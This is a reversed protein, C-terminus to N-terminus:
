VSTLNFFLNAFRKCFAATTSVQKLSLMEVTNAHELLRDTFRCAEEIRETVKEAAHLSEMIRLEEESHMKELEELLEKQIKELVAKYNEFAEQLM